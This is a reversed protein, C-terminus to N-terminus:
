ICRAVNVGCPDVKCPDLCQYSSGQVPVLGVICVCSSRGTVLDFECTTSNLDSCYSVGEVVCRNFPSAINVSVSSTNGNIEISSWSTNVATQIQSYSVLTADRHRVLIDAIVSGSRFELVVVEANTVNENELKTEMQLGRYLNFKAFKLM